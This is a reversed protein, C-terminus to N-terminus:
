KRILVVYRSVFGEKLRMTDVGIKKYRTAVSRTVKRTAIHFKKIGLKRLISNLEEKTYAARTSYFILKETISHPPTVRKLLYNPVDRRLDHIYLFGGPKVVRFMEKIATKVNSFHHLTDKCIVIDFYDKPFPLKVVSGIVFSVNKLSKTNKRAMKVAITSTDIGIVENKLSRSALERALFGPGCGVDLIFLNELNDVKELVNDVLPIIWRNYSDVSLTEFASM